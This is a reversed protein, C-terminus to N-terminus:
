VPLTNESPEHRRGTIYSHRDDIITKIEDFYEAEQPTINDFNKNEILKKIQGVGIPLFKLLLYCAVIVIPLPIYSATIQIQNMIQLAVVVGGFISSATGIIEIFERIKYITDKSFLM